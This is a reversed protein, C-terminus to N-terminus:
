TIYNPLSFSRDALVVLFFCSSSWILILVGNYDKFVCESSQPLACNWSSLTLLSLSLSFSLHMYKLLGHLSCMLIDTALTYACTCTHSRLSPQSCSFLWIYDSPMQLINLNTYYELRNKGEQDCFLERMGSVALEADDIM